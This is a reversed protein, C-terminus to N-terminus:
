TNSKRALNEKQRSRWKDFIGKNENRKKMEEGVKPDLTPSVEKM